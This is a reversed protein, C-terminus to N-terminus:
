KKKLRHIVEGRVLRLYKPEKKWDVRDHGFDFQWSWASEPYFGYTSVTWYAAAQTNPFYAPDITPPPDRFRLDNISGIEAHGPVRWDDFGCLRETNVAITFARTDCDSGRCVGANPLGPEGESGELDPEYWSYTHEKSHLGPDSNKVEWVLETRPDRVCFWPDKAFDGSGTYPTGDANLREMVVNTTEENTSRSCSTLLTLALMACVTFFVLVIHNHLSHPQSQM